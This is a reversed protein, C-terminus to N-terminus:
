QEQNMRDMEENERERWKRKMKECGPQCLKHLGPSLFKGCVKSWLRAKEPERQIGRAQKGAREPETEPLLQNEIAKRARM